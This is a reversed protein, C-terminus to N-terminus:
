RGRHTLIDAIQAAATRAKALLAADDDSSIPHPIICLPYDPLGLAAALARATPVFPETM